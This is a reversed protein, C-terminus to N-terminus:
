FYTQANNYTFFLTEMGTEEDLDLSLSERIDQLDILLHSLFQGDHNLMHITRTRGDCVFIHSLPDTCIGHPELGSGLLGKYTFRHRGARNTVVIADVDSVLVDANNNEAIFSPKRYLKLGTKDYQSIQTLQGSQNYRAVKGTELDERFMAVLLDWNTKTWCLCQPSWIFDTNRIFTTTTRLDKSLICINSNHDIYVLEKKNNVTHFGNGFKNHKFDFPPHINEGRMNIMIISKKDSVWVQDPTVHSINYCGNKVNFSHHFKFVTTLNRETIKIDTLLKIVNYKNFSVSTLFKDRPAFYPADQIKPLITNKIFLIFHVPRNALQDYKQEYNQLRSIKKHYILLVIDWSFYDLRKKLINAKVLMDSKFHIFTKQCNNLDTKIDELFCQRIFLTESFLPFRQFVSRSWSQCKSVKGYKKCLWKHHTAYAYIDDTSVEDFLVITHSKTKLDSVHKEECSYCLGCSCRLCFYPTDEGCKSFRCVRRLHSLTKM